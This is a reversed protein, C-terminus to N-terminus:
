SKDECTGFFFRFIFPIKFKIGPETKVSKAQGFQLVLTKEREDVVFISSTVGIVIVALCVLLILSRNM